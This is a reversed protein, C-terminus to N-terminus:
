GASRLVCFVGSPSLIRVFSQLTVIKQVVFSELQPHRTTPVRSVFCKATYVCAPKGACAFRGFVSGSIKGAQSSVQRSTRIVHMM